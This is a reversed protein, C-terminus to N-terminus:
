RNKMIIMFTLFTIIVSRAEDYWTAAHQPSKPTAPSAAPSGASGSSRVPSGKTDPSRNDKGGFGSPQWSYRSKSSPSSGRGPSSGRSNSLSACAGPSRPSKLGSTSFVRNLRIRLSSKEKKRVTFSGDDGSSEDRDNNLTEYSNDSM